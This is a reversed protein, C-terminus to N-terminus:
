KRGGKRYEIPSVGIVRKFATSFYHQNNYGVKEAVEYMKIFPDDMIRIAKNIRVETLYDIFSSGLEQRLLRSLYAPSIKFEGAVTQLSLNEKHYNVDIYNKSLMVIPTWNEEKTIEAAQRRYTEPINFIDGEIRQQVILVRQKLYQEVAKIVKNGLDNWELIEPAKTIVIINDNYDRFILHSVWNKILEEIISQVAFLIRQRDWEKSFEGANYKEVVKIILMGLDGELSIKFFELQEEAELNTINGNIWENLFRERLFPFNRKLQQDAWNIYKNKMSLQM